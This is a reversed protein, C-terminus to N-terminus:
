KPTVIATTILDSSGPGVMVEITAKAKHALITVIGTGSMSQITWKDAELQQRVTCAVDVKPEDRTYYEISFLQPTKAKVVGGAPLRAGKVTSTVPPRSPTAMDLTAFKKCAMVAPAPPEATKV